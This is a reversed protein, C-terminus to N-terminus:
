SQKKCVLILRDSSKEDFPELKYNGFTKEIMLGAEEMYHAFRSKDLMRVYEYFKKVEGEAEVTIEKVIFDKEERKRIKFLINKEERKEEAKLEGVVKKVNLFDILLVGDNKLAERCNKLVNIDDEENPFYGFSTFLNFIYNFDGEPFPLLMDHNIFRLGGTELRKAYAINSPSIDIGTVSLGREHLYFSHRGRGCALDLAKEDEKFLFFASLRDIFAEAERFDRNKYLIHYYPTDFWAVAPTSSNEPM